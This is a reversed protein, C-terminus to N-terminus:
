EKKISMNFQFVKGQFRECIYAHKESCNEVELIDNDTVLFCYKYPAVLSLSSDIEDFNKILRYSPGGRRFPNGDSWKWKSRSFFFNLM